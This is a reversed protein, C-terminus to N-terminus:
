IQLVLRVILVVGFFVAPLVCGSVIFPKARRL